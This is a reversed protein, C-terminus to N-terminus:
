KIPRQKPALPLMFHKNFFEIDSLPINEAFCCRFLSALLGFVFGIGLSISTYIMHFGANYINQGTLNAYAKIIIPCVFYSGLMCNVFYILIISKSDRIYKKYQREWFLHSFIATVLGALAGVLLSVYPTKIFTGIISVQVVGAIVTMNVHHFRIVGDLISSVAIGTVICGSFAFYLNM